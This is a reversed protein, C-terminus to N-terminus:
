PLEGEPPPQMQYNLYNEHQCNPCIGGIVPIRGHQPDGEAESSANILFRYGCEECTVQKHYGLLTTAMSGTPIVFAEALFTKLLLVLVVVFVVTEVVERTADKVEPQKKKPAPKPKAKISPTTAAPKAPTSAEKVGPPPSGAVVKESPKPQPPSSGSTIEQSSQTKDDAMNEGTPENPRAM